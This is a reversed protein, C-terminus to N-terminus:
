QVPRDMNGHGCVAFATGAVRGWRTADGPALLRASTLALAAIRINTRYERIGALVFSIKLSIM